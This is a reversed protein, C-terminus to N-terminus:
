YNRRDSDWDKYREKLERIRISQSHARISWLAAACWGLGAQFEGEMLNFIGLVMNLFIVLLMVGDDNGWYGKM